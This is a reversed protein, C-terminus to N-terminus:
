RDKQVLFCSTPTKGTGPITEPPASNKSTPAVCPEHMHYLSRPVCLRLCQPKEMPEPLLHFLVSSGHPTGKTGGPGFAPTHANLLCRPPVRGCLGTWIKQSLRENPSRRSVKREQIREKQADMEGWSGCPDGAWFSSQRRSGPLSGLWPSKEIRCFLVPM